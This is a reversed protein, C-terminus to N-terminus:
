TCISKSINATTSIEAEKVKRKINKNENDPNRSCKRSNHEYSRYLM